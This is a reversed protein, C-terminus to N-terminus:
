SASKVHSAHEEDRTSEAHESLRMVDRREETPLLALIQGSLEDDTVALLDVRDDASMDAVLEAVEEPSHAEIIEVQYPLEFFSFIESRTSLDTYQLVAWVEEPSLGEMFEATRAPHLATCFEQLSKQDKEVLMERLEPLYLTNIM